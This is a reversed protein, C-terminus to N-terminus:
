LTKIEAASKVIMTLGIARSANSTEKICYIINLITYILYVNLVFLNENEM